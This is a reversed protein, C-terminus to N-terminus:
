KNLEELRKKTKELLEENDSIEIIKKLCTKLEEENELEGGKDYFLTLADLALDDGLDAAQTFYSYAKEWDREIDYGYYYIMGLDNLSSVNGYEAAKEYLRIAQAIDKEIGNGIRYNVGITSLLFAAGKVNKECALSLYYVAKVYDKEVGNGFEYFEGMKLFAIDIGMIAAQEYYKYADEYLEIEEFVLGIYCAAFGKEDDNDAKEFAEFYYENAKLLDKNIFEGKRYLNGLDILAQTSGHKKAKEYWEVAKELDKGEPLLGDEYLEGIDEMADACGQSASKIYWEFAKEINQEVGNGFQYCCGLAEQAEAHGKNALKEYIPFAKECEDAEDYQEALEYLADDGMDQIPIREM